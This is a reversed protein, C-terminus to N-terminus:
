PRPGLNEMAPKGSGDTRDYKFFMIEMGAQLVAFAAKPTALEGAEDRERVLDTFKAILAKSTEAHVYLYLSHIKGKGEADITNTEEVRYLKIHSDPVHVQTGDANRYSFEPQHEDAVVRYRTGNSVYQQLLGECIAKEKTVPDQEKSQEKVIRHIPTEQSSFSREMM